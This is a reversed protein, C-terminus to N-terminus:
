VGGEQKALLRRQGLAGEAKPALVYDAGLEVLEDILSIDFAHIACCVGARKCHYAFLHNAGEIQLASVALKATKLGAEDLVAHYDVNGLLTECRLGTLKAPDTDIALVTEGAEHLREALERGLANMGVVLVHGRRERVEGEDDEQKARFVKLWGRRQLWAYLGETYIIMYASIAITLVGVVATIAMVGDGVLGAAVGGAVFIFSFESIQAVTVSTAFATREAYGMRTIILLFILPNGILVFLSLVLAPRWEAAAGDFNMKAGLAVFFVAIFFNMLPHVRRRLDDNYPLQALALGALFAGIELSLGMAHAAAVLIFCWALAWVFLAGPSRAVWRFPRPLVWRAAALTGGLLLTMGGFAWGLDALNVTGEGGGRALGAMVTLVLIVVLDQVLFIGVAIRGYLRNLHGKEDLLKVVVVTSSFTLAVSLFLSEMPSFGLWWCLLYGGAATFGVQGLGAAVAVRGVDRIKGLSLELGVLFLLLAIGVEAILDLETGVTLWGTIPGLFLGAMLYAVIPPVRLSRGATAFLAAGVVTLGLQKLIVDDFM